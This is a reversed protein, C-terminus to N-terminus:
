PAESDTVIIRLAIARGDRHVCDVIVFDGPYIAWREAEEVVVDDPPDTSPDTTRYVLGFDTEPTVVISRVTILRTETDIRWPGFEALMITGGDADVDLLSGAHKVVQAGVSPTGALALVLVVAAVVPGLRVM